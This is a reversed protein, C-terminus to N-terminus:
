ETVVGKVFDDDSVVAKIEGQSRLLSLISELDKVLFKETPRSYQGLVTAFTDEEYVVFVAEYRSVKPIPTFEDNRYYGNAVHTLAFPSGTVELGTDLDYVSARPYRTTNGDHLSLTLVLASNFPVIESM